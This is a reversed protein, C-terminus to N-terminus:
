TVALSYTRIESTFDIEYRSKVHHCFKIGAMKTEHTEWTARKDDQFIGDRPASWLAHWGERLIGVNIFKGLNHWKPRLILLELM